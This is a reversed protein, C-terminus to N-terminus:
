YVLLDTHLGFDSDIEVKIRGLEKDLRQKANTIDLGEAFPEDIFVYYEFDGSYASGASEVSFGDGLLSELMYQLDDDYDEEAQGEDLVKYGIGGVPRYDIGM